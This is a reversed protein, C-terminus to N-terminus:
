FKERTGAGLESVWFSKVSVWVDGWGLQGGPFKGQCLDGGLVGNGMALGGQATSGGDVCGGGLVVVMLTQPLVGLVVLCNFV